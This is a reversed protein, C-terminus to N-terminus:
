VDLATEKTAQPRPRSLFRHLRNIAVTPRSIAPWEKKHPRTASTWSYRLAVLTPKASTAVRLNKSVEVVGM